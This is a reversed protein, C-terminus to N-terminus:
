SDNDCHGVVAPYSTSTRVSSSVGASDSGYVYSHIEDFSTYYCYNWFTVTTYNHNKIILIRRKSEAGTM